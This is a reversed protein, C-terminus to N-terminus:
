HVGHTPCGYVIDVQGGKSAKVQDCAAGYLEIHKGDTSYDWGDQKATDRLIETTSGGDTFQVNVKNPDFSGADQPPIDYSCSLTQGSIAALATAIAQGFNAPNTSMDYHCNGVTPSTVIDGSQCGPQATGGAEALHSLVARYGESGPVGIVFTRVGDKALADAVENIFSQNDANMDCLANCNICFNAQGDTALVIYKNGQAGSSMLNLYAQVAADHTPTGGLPTLSNLKSVIQAQNQALPALPVDPTSSVCTPFPPYIPYHMLGVVNDPPINGLAQILADRLISWRSGPKASDACSSSTDANDTPLCNMSGSLDLQFMLNAPLATSKSTTTLCGADPDTTGDLSADVLLGGSGGGGATGAAGAGGGAGGTSDGGVGAHGGAGGGPNSSGGASCATAILAISSLVAFRRFSTSM